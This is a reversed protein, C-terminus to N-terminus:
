ATSSCYKPSDKLAQLSYLADELGEREAAALQGSSEAIEKKRLAIAAEAQVILSEASSSHQGFIASRYLAQWRGDWQPTHFPM